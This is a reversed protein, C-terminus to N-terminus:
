LEPQGSAGVPSVPRRFAWGSGRTRSGAAELAAWKGKQGVLCFRGELRGSVPAAFGVRVRSQCVGLSLLEETGVEASAHSGRAARMQECGVRQSCVEMRLEEIGVTEQTRGSRTTHAPLVRQSCAEGPVTSRGSRRLWANSAHAPRTPRGRHQSGSLSRSLPSLSLSASRQKCQSEMVCSRHLTYSRQLKKKFVLTKKSGEAWRWGRALVRTPQRMLCTREEIWLSLAPRLPFCECRIVRCLCEVM